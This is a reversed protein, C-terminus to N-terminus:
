RRGLLSWAAPFGLAAVAAKVVDGVLFPTLGFQIAKDFGVFGALWLLGSVPGM